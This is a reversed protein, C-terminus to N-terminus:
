PQSTVCLRAEPFFWDPGLDFQGQRNCGDVSSLSLMRQHLAGLEVAALFLASM